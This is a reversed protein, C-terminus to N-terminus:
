THTHIQIHTTIPHTHIFIYTHTTLNTNATLSLQFTGWGKSAIKNTYFALNLDEELDDLTEEPYGDRYTKTDDKSGGRSGSNGM